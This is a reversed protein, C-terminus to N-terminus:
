KVSEVVLYNVGNTSYEKGTVTVQDEMHKIIDEPLRSANTSPLVIYSAGTGKEILVVPIGNTACKTACAKHSPGKAGMTAYCYADELNGTVSKEGGDAATAAGALGTAVVFILVFGLRIGFNALRNM